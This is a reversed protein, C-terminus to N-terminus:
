IGNRLSLAKASSRADLFISPQTPLLGFEQAKEQTLSLQLAGYKSELKGLETTLTDISRESVQRSVINLITKNVFYLYMGLSLVSTALFLWFLQALRYEFPHTQTM